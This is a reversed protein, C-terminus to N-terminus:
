KHEEHGLTAMNFFVLTLMSFVLAQIFGVFFELFYFPMPAVVPILGAIVVLLVEGAFINGFLRFAFSLIKAFESILELVGIFFMIPSSFNFFKKLYVAGLYRFGILQTCFVSVIALALTTNLDATGARLFPVFTNHESKSESASASQNVQHSNSDITESAYVPNFNTTQAHEQTSEPQHNVKLGVTGVGPLLGFWNNLLIFTFFSLFFPMIARTKQHDHTVSYVLKYFTEIIFEFFNQLKTPVQSSKNLNQKVKLVLFIILISVIISTIISNSIELGAITFLKEASISIHLNM